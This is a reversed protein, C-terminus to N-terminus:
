SAINFSEMGHSKVGVSEMVVSTGIVMIRARGSKATLKM